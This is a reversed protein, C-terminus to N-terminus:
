VASCRLRRERLCFNSVCGPSPIGAVFHLFPVRLPLSLAHASVVRADHPRGCSSGSVAPLRLVRPTELSAVPLCPSGRSGCGLEPGGNTVPPDLQGESRAQTVQAERCGRPFGTRSPSAGADGAALPRTGDAPVSLQSRPFAPGARLWTVAPQAPGTAAAVSGPGGAPPPSGLSSRPLPLPTAPSSAASCVQFPAGAM